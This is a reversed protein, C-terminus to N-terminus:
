AGQVRERQAPDLRNYDLPQALLDCVSLSARLRLGSVDQSTRSCGFKCGRMLLVCVPGDSVEM